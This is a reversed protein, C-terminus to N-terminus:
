HVASSGVAPDPDLRFAQRIRPEDFASSYRGCSNEKLYEAGSLSESEGVFKLLDHHETVLPCSPRTQSQRLVQVWGNAEITTEFCFQFALHQALM